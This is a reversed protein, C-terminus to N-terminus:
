AAQLTKREIRNDVSGVAWQTIREELEANKQRLADLEGAIKEADQRKIADLQGRLRENEETLRAHEGGLFGDVKQAMDKISQTTQNRQATGAEDTAAKHAALMAELEGRLAAMAEPHTGHRSKSVKASAFFSLSFGVLGILAFLPAFSHLTHSLDVFPMELTAALLLSAGALATVHGLLPLMGSIGGTSSATKKKDDKTVPKAM